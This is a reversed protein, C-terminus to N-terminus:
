GSGFKIIHLSTNNTDTYAKVSYLFTDVYICCGTESYQIRSFTLAQM